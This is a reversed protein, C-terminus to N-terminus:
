NDRKGAISTNIAFSYADIAHKMSFQELMLQRGRDGMRRTEDRDLYLRMLAAALSSPDNPNVVVGCGEDRMFTALQSDEEATCVVARGAALIDWTKSPFAIKTIGPLLSVLGVDGLSYVAAIDGTPQMPYCKVNSLGLHRIRKRVADSRSGDGILVIRIPPCEEQLIAAADVVTELNQLQGINGAYCVYFGERDLGFDDFLHNESRDVPYCKTPDVWDHIVKAKDKSANRSLVTAMVDASPVAITSVRGYVWRELVKLIAILPNYGSAGNLSMLSDPFVDQLKFVVPHRGALMAAVYALFPPTSVVLYVDTDVSKAERYLSMSKVAFDIGRRLIGQHYESPGGVRIVRLTPSVQEIREELYKEWQRREVNRIPFPVVVTVDFDNESLCRSLDDNLRTDASQEPPYYGAVLTVRPRDSKSPEHTRRASSRRLAEEPTVVCYSYEYRETGVYVLSGFAKRLRQAAPRCIAISAGLARSLRLRRERDKALASVAESTNMFEEDQPFFVGELRNAVCLLIFACLNDVYIASRRNDVLPFVPSRQAFTVLANFNGKCGPGYVMPPRLVAVSFSGDALSGVLREGERKSRGYHTRPDPETEPTIVGEDMGYVSMTSLMVFHPVGAAKSARAVDYALDRNVEYYLHANEETERRHAIGAVLVVSDYGTLDAGRWGNGRVDLECVDCPMGNERCFTGIRTGIYSGKGAVLIRRM